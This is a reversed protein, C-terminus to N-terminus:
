FSAALHCHYSPFGQKIDGPTIIPHKDSICCLKGRFEANKTKCLAHIYGQTSNGSSDGAIFITDTFSILVAPIALCNYQTSWLIFIEM